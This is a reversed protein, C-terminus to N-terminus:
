QEFDVNKCYYHYAKEIEGNQSNIEMVTGGIIPTGSPVWSKVLRDGVDVYINSDYTSSKFGFQLRVGEYVVGACNEHDHGVCISDVGLVKLGQWVYGDRDWSETPSLVIGFDTSTEDMKDIIIPFASSSRDRTYGYKEYAKEFAHIAIHFVFTIKTNPSSKHLENIGNTYWEIQDGGFGAQHKSHGNAISLESPNGSNSDIMYFVRTLEKGQKIGVTYNGNGTLTRQKALFYGNQERNRSKWPRAGM